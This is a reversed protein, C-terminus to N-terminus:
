FELVSDADATTLKVGAPEIIQKVLGQLFSSSRLSADHIPFCNKPKISKAYDICESIKMWPATLPLALIEVKSSPVTLADGPHFLRGGIMYGTNAAVPITQYILAHKEGFGEIKVGKVITSQGHGLLSYAIKEKDLAAGVETTTFIKANPNGSLIAKISQLDFHDPHSHTILVADVNKVENQKTSFNGPDLIIKASGEEVLLCSHAFKTIKM